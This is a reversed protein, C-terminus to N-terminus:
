RRPNSLEKAIIWAVPVAAVFGVAAAILIPRLTDLGTALAAIILVGAMTPGTLAYIIAALRLM